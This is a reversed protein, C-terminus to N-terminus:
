LATNAARKAAQLILLMENHERQPVPAAHLSHSNNANRISLIESNEHKTINSYLLRGHVFVILLISAFVAYLHVFAIHGCLFVVSNTHLMTDSYPLFTSCFLLLACLVNYLFTRLLTEMFGLTNCNLVVRVCVFVCSLVIKQLHQSDKQTRKTRLIVEVSACASWLLDVAFILVTQSNSCIGQQQQTLFCLACVCLHGCARDFHQEHMFISDIYVACVTIILIGQERLNTATSIWFMISVFVTSRIILLFVPFYTSVLSFDYPDNDHWCRM